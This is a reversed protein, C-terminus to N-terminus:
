PKYRSTKRPLYPEAPCMASLLGAQPTVALLPAAAAEAAFKTIVIDRGGGGFHDQFANKVPYDEANSSGTVYVAGASDVAVGFLGNTGHGGFFTSYALSGDTSFKALVGDDRYGSSATIFPQLSNKAPFDSSYTYAAVYASGDAGLAFGGEFEVDSGGLYTSYILSDGQLNFKAVFLDLQGGGYTDQFPRKLPFDGATTGMFYIGTRDVAVDTASAFQKGGLYTSYLITQGSASLKTLFANGFLNNLSAQFPSKTPFDLSGTNGVVFLNGDADMAIGSGGDSGSGGLYTSFVLASGSPALKTVFADGQSAPTPQMANRVPFDSSTTYGTIYANGMTDVIVHRAIDDRGGGLYSSYIIKGVPSLKVVFADYYGGGYAAQFASKTPFDISTTSGCLYTNGAADVAINNVVDQYSGGVYTYSLLKNGAPNMKAVFVHLGSGSPQQFPDLVPYNPSQNTGAIYANGAADVGITRGHDEGNGGLYTSYEVIPDITLPLRRDFKSLALELHNEAKIRYNAAIERGDQFVKPKRQRIGAVVLDGGDIKIPESYALQIQNPDAGSAVVFDYELNRGNAYYVLDIGRYVNRYRVRAYHPIGTFWNKENQGIYYNSYSGLPEVGEMTPSAAAGVLKMHESHTSAFVVEPGTIYTMAGASRAIWQTRGTVQGMNPEFWLSGNAALANAGTLAIALLSNFLLRSM